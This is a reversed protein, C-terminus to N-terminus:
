KKENDTIALHSFKENGIQQFFKTVNEYKIRHGKTKDSLLNWTSMFITFDQQLEKIMTLDNDTYYNKFQKIVHKQLIKSKSDNQDDCKLIEEDMERDM